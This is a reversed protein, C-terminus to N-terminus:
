RGPRLYCRSGLMSVTITVTKSRTRSLSDTAQGKLAFGSTGVALDVYDDTGVLAGNQYWAYSFPRIGGYPNLVWECTHNPKVTLPGIVHVSDFPPPPPPPPGQISVVRTVEPTTRPQEDPRMTELGVVYQRTSTTDWMFQNIRIVGSNSHSDWFGTRKTLDAASDFYVRSLLRGKDSSSETTSSSVSSFRFWTHHTGSLTALDAFTQNVDPNTGVVSDGYLVPTDSYGPAGVDVRVIVDSHMYSTDDYNLKEITESVGATANWIALTNGQSTMIPVYDIDFTKNIL